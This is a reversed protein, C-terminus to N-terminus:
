KVYSFTTQLRPSIVWREWLKTFRWELHPGVPVHAAWGGGGPLRPLVPLDGRHRSGAWPSIYEELRQHDGPAWPLHWKTSGRWPAHSCVLCYCSFFTLPSILLVFLAAAQKPLSSAFLAESERGGNALFLLNYCIGEIQKKKPMNKHTNM